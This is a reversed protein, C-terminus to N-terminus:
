TQILIDRMIGKGHTPKVFKSTKPTQSVMKKFQEGNEIRCVAKKVARQGQGVDGEDGDRQVQGDGEEQHGRLREEMWDNFDPPTIGGEVRQVNIYLRM